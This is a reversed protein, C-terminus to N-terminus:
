TKLTTTLVIKDQPPTQIHYTLPRNEPNQRHIITNYFTYYEETVNENTFNVFNKHYGM